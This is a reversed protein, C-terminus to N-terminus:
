EGILIGMPKCYMTYSAELEGIAM